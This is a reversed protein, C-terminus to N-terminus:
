LYYGTQAQTTAPMKEVDRFDNPLVGKAMLDTMVGIAKIPDKPFSKEDDGFVQEWVEPAVTEKIKKRLLNELRQMEEPDEDELSGVSQSLVSLREVMKFIGRIDPKPIRIYTGNPLSVELGLFEVGVANHVRQVNENHWLAIPVETMNGESDTFEVHPRGADVFITHKVESLKRLYEADTMVDNREDSM